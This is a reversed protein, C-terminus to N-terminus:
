FKHKVPAKAVAKAVAKTTAKAAPLTSKANANTGRIKAMEKQEATVMDKEAATIQDAIRKESQELFANLKKTSAKTAVQSAATAAALQKQASALRAVGSGLITANTSANGASVPVQMKEELTSKVKDVVESLDGVKRSFHQASEELPDEAKVEAEKVESEKRRLSRRLLQEAAGIKAGLQARATVEPGGWDGAKSPIAESKALEM